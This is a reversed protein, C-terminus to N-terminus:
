KEVDLISTGEAIEGSAVPTVLTFKKSNTIMVLTTPLYGAAAVATLDVTGLVDGANVHQGREVATTFGEGAMKVTDIGVHILVETGNDGSIGYAHGTKQVTILRGSVPATVSVTGEGAPEVGIGAGMAGSSFVKDTVQDLPIVTGALPAELTVQGPADTSRVASSVGSAPAVEPANKTPTTPTASGPVEPEGTTAVLKREAMPVIFWTAFFAIGIAIIIGVITLTFNGISTTTPIGLLSPFVFADSGGRGTGIIAGGVAGSGIAIFFPYKLPLNVGYIIPETVGALFGSIVGPGAVKKRQADRGRLWVALGAGAQALVAAFPPGALLTFGQVSLDNIFVPILGWHLGFLVFVQWFGGMVAGGLWPVVDMLTNTGDSIWNSLTITVPGVTLLVLPTMIGVVILPTLFSRIAGPLVKELWRQLYGALWVAIIAPIVSSTYNMSNVPIGFFHVSDADALAVIQPLM